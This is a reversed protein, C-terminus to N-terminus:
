NENKHKEIEQLVQETPFGTLKSIEEISSGNELLRLIVVDMKEAVEVIHQDYDYFRFIKQKWPQERIKHIFEFGNKTIEDEMEELNDIEFYLVLNNHKGLNVQQGTLEQFFAKRYLSLGGEFGVNYIGFDASVKLHLIGEYLKRSRAIEEVIIISSVFGM